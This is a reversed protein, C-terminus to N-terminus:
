LPFHLFEGPNKMWAAFILDAHRNQGEQDFHCGDFRHFINIQDTEAGPFIGQSPDWLDKLIQRFIPDGKSAFNCLTGVDVYIPAQVGAQRMSKLMLQFLEHYIQKDSFQGANKEGQHWFLHTFNLGQQNIEIIAQLIKEHLIGGRSWQLIDTNGVAINVFIINDAKNQAILRDGFRSWVSGGIGTAGLLPDKAQYFNGQYYNYVGKRPYFPSKGENAALSQGFALAVMVRGRLIQPLDVKEYKASPVHLTANIPLDVATIKNQKVIGQINYEFPYKEFDYQYGFYDLLQNFNGLAANVKEFYIGSLFAAASLIAFCLIKTLM